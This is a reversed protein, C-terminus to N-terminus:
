RDNGRSSADWALLEGLSVRFGIAEYMARDAPACGVTLARVGSERRAYVALARAIGRHREEPLIYFDEFVGSTDYCCTSFGLKVSCMGLLRGQREFGFFLIREAAVADRLRVLAAADPAEEGIAQKYRLHLATLAPMDAATLRRCTYESM